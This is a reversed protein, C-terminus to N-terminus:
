LFINDLYEKNKKSDEYGANYLKTLDMPFKNFNILNDFNCNIVTVNTTTSTKNEAWIDPAIILSPTTVNLYPYSYFGGDFSIKNRYKNFAGGTIFPIHSSAICCDVADELDTFDNYICLKFESKDLVSVGLYLKDLDFCCDDYKKLIVSKMRSELQSISKISKLNNKLLEKTFADPDDKLSLFLSNWAGASAGSFIYDTLDYNEKIYASIGMFYFGFLGGPTSIILKSNPKEELLPELNEIQKQGTKKYLTLVTNRISFPVAVFLLSSICLGLLYQMIYYYIM